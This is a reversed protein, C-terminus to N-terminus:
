GVVSAGSQRHRTEMMPKPVNYKLVAVVESSDRLQPGTILLSRHRSDSRAQCPGLFDYWQPVRGLVEGIRPGLPHQRVKDTDIKIRVNAGSDALKGAAGSLAV